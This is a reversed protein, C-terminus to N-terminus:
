RDATRIVRASAWAARVQRCIATVAEAKSPYVASTLSRNTWRDIKDDAGLIAEAAEGYFGGCAPAHTITVIAATM